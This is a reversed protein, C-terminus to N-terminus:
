GNRVDEDLSHPQINRLNDLGWQRIHRVVEPGIHIIYEFRTWGDELRIAKQSAHLPSSILYNINNYRPGNKLEFSVKQAGNIPDRFIGVCDKWYERPNFDSPITYKKSKFGSTIEMIRDLSFPRLESSDDVSAILYWRKAHEKLLYPKAHTITSIKGTQFSRYTFEVTENNFSIVKYFVAMLEAVKNTINDSNVNQGWGSYVHENTEFDIFPRLENSDLEYEIMLDEFDLGLLNELEEMFTLGKYKNFTVAWRLLDSVSTTEFLNEKLEDVDEKYFYLYSGGVKERMLFDYKVLDTLTNRITNDIIRKEGKPAKKIVRGDEHNAWFEEVQAVTAGQKKSKIFLLLSVSKRASPNLLKKLVKDRILSM